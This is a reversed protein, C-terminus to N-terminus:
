KPNIIHGGLDLRIITWGCKKFIKYETSSFQCPFGLTSEAEERNHFHQNFGGIFNVILTKTSYNAEASMPVLM